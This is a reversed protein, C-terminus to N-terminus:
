KNEDLSRKCGVLKGQSIQLIGTLKMQMCLIPLPALPPFLFPPTQLKNFILPFVRASIRESFSFQCSSKLSKDLAAYLMLPLVPGSALPGSKLLAKNTIRFILKRITLVTKLIGQTSLSKWIREERSQTPQQYTQKVKKGRFCGSNQNM